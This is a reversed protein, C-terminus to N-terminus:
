EASTGGHQDAPGRASRARWAVAIGVVVFGAVLLWFSARVIGAGALGAGGALLLLAAGGCCVLHLVAMWWMGGGDETQRNM